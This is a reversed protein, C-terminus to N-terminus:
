HGTNIVVEALLSRAKGITTTLVVPMNMKAVVLKTIPHKVGKVGLPIVLRNGYYNNCCLSEGEIEFNAKIFRNNIWANSVEDPM